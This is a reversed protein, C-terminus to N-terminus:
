HTIKLLAPATLPCQPSSCPSDWRGGLSTGVALGKWGPDSWSTLARLPLHALSSYVPTRVQPPPLGLGWRDLVHHPCPPSNGPGSRRRFPLMFPGQPSVEWRPTGGLLASLSGFTVPGAWRGMVVIKVSGLAFPWAKGKRLLRAAQWTGDQQWECTM